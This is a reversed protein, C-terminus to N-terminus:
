KENIVKYERLEAAKHVLINKRALRKSYQVSEPETTIKEQLLDAMRDLAKATKEIEYHSVPVPSNEIEERYDKDATTVAIYQAGPYDVIDNKKTNFFCVHTMPSEDANRQDLAKATAVLSAPNESILVEERVFMGVEKFYKIFKKRKETYSVVDGNNKNDVLVVSDVSKLAKTMAEKDVHKADYDNIDILAVTRPYITMCENRIYKLHLIIEELRPRLEYDTYKMSEILSKLRDHRDYYPKFM